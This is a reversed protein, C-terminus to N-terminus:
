AVPYLKNLADRLLEAEIRTMTLYRSTFTEDTISLTDTNWMQDHTRNVLFDGVAIEQTSNADDWEYEYM